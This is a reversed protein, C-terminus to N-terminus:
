GYTYSVNNVITPNTPDDIATITDFGAVPLTGPTYYAISTSGSMQSLFPGAPVTSLPNLYVFAGGGSSCSSQLTLCNRNRGFALYVNAGAIASGAADYATVYVIQSSQPGLSGAVAIPSPNLGYRVPRGYSYHLHGEFASNNPDQARISDQGTTPLVAPTQYEIVLGSSPLDLLLPSTGLRHGLVTATAGGAVTTGMRLQVPGSPGTLTLEVLQGPPLTGAPAVFATATYGPALVVPSFQYTGLSSAASVPTPLLAALLILACASGAARV